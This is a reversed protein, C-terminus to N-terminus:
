SVLIGCEMLSNKVSHYSGFKKDLWKRIFTRSFYLRSKDVEFRLILPGRPEELIQANRKGRGADTVVLRNAAQEDIFQGLTDIPDGAYERKNYRMGIATDTAWKLVRNIDFRILGLKKAVLGGFIAVAMVASWFREDGQMDSDLDIKEKIKRLSNEITEINQVLWKAYVEGAVGYNKDLTWYLNTTVKGSFEPHEHIFYEFVRNIEASADHKASALKDVLSANSSTVALTNWKNILKKEESNKTLRAKDRGQTVRYVLDSLEMGTTNTVEDVTLPLNGYVGLRSVLANKTDDRLMMLDNHYGWVSQIWRLILTKGAGTKGVLSVMAGDFGTFKMLPAGFGGALLAFAFPEMGPRNLVETATVWKDLSGRSRFGEASRPVNKALSANDVSGDRHYIKKGLVFIEKNNALKWGMQCLLMSMRRNRQLKAAYSEMYAALLKKSKAGVVKIHNDTLTNILIKSDNVLSSRVSCTMEGEFPLFHKIIM